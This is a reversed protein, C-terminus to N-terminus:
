DRLQDDSYMNTAAEAEICAYTFSHMFNAAVMKSSTAYIM